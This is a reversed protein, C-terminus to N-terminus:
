PVFLDLFELRRPVHDSCKQQSTPFRLERFYAPEAPLDLFELSLYFLLPLFELLILLFDIPEPLSGPFCFFLTILSFLGDVKWIIRGESRM